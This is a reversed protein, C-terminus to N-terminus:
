QPAFKVATAYCMMEVSWTSKGEGKFMTATELRLNLYMDADPCEAKMRLVAERRGRDLLSSYTTVEGGFINRLGAILRKYHDISVVVSGVCLRAEAVTREGSFSKTTTVPIQAFKEERLRISKYHKKEATKGAYYGVAILILPWFSFAIDIASSM